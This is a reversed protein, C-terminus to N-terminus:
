MGGSQSCWTVASSSLTDSDTHVCCGAMSVAALARAASRDKARMLWSINCRSTTMTSVVHLSCLVHRQWDLRLPGLALADHSQPDDELRKNLHHDELMARPQSMNPIDLRELQVHVRGLKHRPCQKLASVPADWASVRLTLREVLSTRSTDTRVRTHHLYSAHLHMSHYGMPSLPCEGQLDGFMGLARLMRVAQVPSLM